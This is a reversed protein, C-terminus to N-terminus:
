DDLAAWAATRFDTCIPPPSPSTWAAQTFLLTVLDETPDNM